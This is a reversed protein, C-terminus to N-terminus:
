VEQLSKDTLVGGFTKSHTILNSVNARCVNCNAAKSKVAAGRQLRVQLEVAIFCHVWWTVDYSSYLQVILVFSSFIGSCKVVSVTLTHYM